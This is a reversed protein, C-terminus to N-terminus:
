NGHGHRPLKLKASEGGEREAPSCLEPLSPSATCSALPTMRLGSLRGSGEREGPWVGPSSREVSLRIGRAPRALVAGLSGAPPRSAADRSGVGVRLAAAPRGGIGSPGGQSKSVPAGTREKSVTVGGADDRSRRGRTM